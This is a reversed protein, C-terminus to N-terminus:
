HRKSPPGEQEIRGPHKRWHPDWQDKLWEKWHRTRARDIAEQRDRWIKRMKKKHHQSACEQSTCAGMKPVDDNGRGNANHGDHDSPDMRTAGHNAFSTATAAQAIRADAASAPAVVAGAAVAVSVAALTLNRAHTIKHM